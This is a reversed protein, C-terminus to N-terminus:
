AAAETAPLVADGVTASSDAGNPTPRFRLVAVFLAGAGFLLSLLEMGRKEQRNVAKHIVTWFLDVTM